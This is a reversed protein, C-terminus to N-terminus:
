VRVALLAPGESACPTVILSVSGAFTEKTEAVGDCPLQECAAPTTDQVMPVM